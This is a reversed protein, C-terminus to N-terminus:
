QLPPRPPLVNAPVILPPKKAQEIRDLEMQNQANALCKVAEGLMHLGYTISSDPITINYSGDQLPTVVMSDGAIETEVPIQVTVLVPKREGSYSQHPDAQNMQYGKKKIKFAM